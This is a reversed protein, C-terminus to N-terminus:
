EESRKRELNEITTRNELVLDVHMKFFRTILFIALGCVGFAILILM